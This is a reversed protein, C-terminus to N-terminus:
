DLAVQARGCLDCPLTSDANIHFRAVAPGTSVSLHGVFAFVVVTEVASYDHTLAFFM